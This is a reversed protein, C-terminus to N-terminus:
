KQNLFLQHIKINILNLSVTKIRAILYAFLFIFIVISVMIIVSEFYTGVKVTDHVQHGENM